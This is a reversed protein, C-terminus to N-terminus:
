QKHKRICKDDSLSGAGPCIPTGDTYHTVFYPFHPHHDDPSLRESSWQVSEDVVADGNNSFHFPQPPPVQHAVYQGVDVPFINHQRKPTDERAPCM